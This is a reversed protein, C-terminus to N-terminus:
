WFCIAWAGLVGILSFLTGIFYFEAFDDDGKIKNERVM